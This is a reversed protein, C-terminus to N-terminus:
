AKAIKKSKSKSEPMKWHISFGKLVNKRLNIFSIFGPITPIWFTIIRYIMVAAMSETSPFGFFTFGAYLGAEAAGIGGPIPVINAMTTGLTYILFSQAFNIDLGVSKSSAYLTLVGLTPALFSTVLAWVIDKPRDKYSKFQGWFSELSKKIFNKIIDSSYIVFSIILVGIVLLVVVKVWDVNGSNINLGDAMQYKTIGVVLSFIFLSSFALSSTVAKMAIISAIQPSKHGVKYLYFSNIVFSSISSPLLKNIFLVSMQVKFAIWNNLPKISLVILQITYLPITIYYFINGVIIWGLDAGHIEEVTSEITEKDPLILYFIIVFIITWLISKKNKSIESTIRKLM